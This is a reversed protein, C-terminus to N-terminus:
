ALAVIRPPSVVTPWWATTPELTISVRLTSGYVTTVSSNEGIVTSGDEPLPFVAGRACQWALSLSAISLALRAVQRHRTDRESSSM